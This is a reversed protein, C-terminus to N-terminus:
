YNLEIDETGTSTPEERSGSDDSSSAATPGFDDSSPTIKDSVKTKVNLQRTAAQTNNEARTSFKSQLASIKDDKSMAQMNAMATKANAKVNAIADAQEKPTMAIFSQIAAAQTPFKTVLASRQEEPSMTKFNAITAAQEPFRQALAVKREAPSMSQMAELKTLQEPTLKSAINKKAQEKKTEILSKQEENLQRSIRDRLSKNNSTPSSNPGSAQVMMGTSLVMSLALVNLKKM